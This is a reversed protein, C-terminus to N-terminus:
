GLSKEDIPYLTLGEFEGVIRMIGISENVAAAGKLTDEIGARVFSVEVIDKKDLIIEEKVDRLEIHLKDIRIDGIFKMKSNLLNYDIEGKIIIENKEFEVNCKKILDMSMSDYACWGSDSFRSNFKDTQILIEDLQKEINKLQKRQNSNLIISLLKMSKIDFKFKNMSVLNKDM